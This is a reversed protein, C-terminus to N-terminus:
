KSEKYSDQPSKKAKPAVLTIAACNTYVSILTRMPDIITDIAILLPLIAGLPLHIPNLVISLASLTLIGTAGATSLGGLVSLVTVIVILSPTIDTQYITAIFISLTAFYAINGFRGLVAGMPVLLKVLSPDFNLKNEFAKLISPIPLVASRTGFSIIIPDKLEKLVKMFSLGSRKQIIFTSLIFIVFFIGYVKLIFAGMQIMMEFGIASAGGAMLAVIALPLWITINTIIKQFIMLTTDLFSQVKSREKMSSYGIAIGFILSFLIIQLMKNEALSEFINRPISTQLFYALGRQETEIISLNLTRDVFAASTSIEKIKINESDLFGAAPDLIVALLCSILSVGLAIGLLISVIRSSSISLSKLSLLNSISLSIACIIIPILSMELLSMFALGYPELDAGMDPSYFGIALGLLVTFLIFFPNQLIVKLATYTKQLM